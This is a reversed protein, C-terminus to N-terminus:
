APKLHQKGQREHAEKVWWAAAWVTEAGPPGFLVQEPLSSPFRAALLAPCCAHMCHVGQRGLVLPWQPLAGLWLM